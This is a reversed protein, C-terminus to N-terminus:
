VLRRSFFVILIMGVRKIVNDVAAVEEFKGDVTEFTGTGEVDKDV